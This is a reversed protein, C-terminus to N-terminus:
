KGTIAYLYTERNDAWTEAVRKVWGRRLAVPARRMNRPRACRAASLLSCGAHHNGLRMRVIGFNEGILEEIPRNPSVYM